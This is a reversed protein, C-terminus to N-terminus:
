ADGLIQVSRRVIGASRLLPTGLDVSALHLGQDALQETLAELEGTDALSPDDGYTARRMAADWTSGAGWRVTDEGVLVITPVGHDLRGDFATLRERGVHLECDLVPLDRGHELELVAEWGLRDSLGAVLARQVTAAMSLGIPRPHQPQLSHDGDSWVADAAIWWSREEADSAIVLNSGEVVGRGALAGLAMVDRRRLAIVSGGAPVLTPGSTPAPTTASSDWRSATRRHPATLEPILTM